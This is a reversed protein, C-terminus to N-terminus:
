AELHLEFLEFVNGHHRGDGVRIASHFALFAIQLCEIESDLAVSSITMFMGVCPFSASDPIDGSELWSDLQKDQRLIIRRPAATTAAM